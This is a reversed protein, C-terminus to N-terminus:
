IVFFFVRERESKCENEGTEGARAEYRGFIFISFISISVFIGQECKKRIKENREEKKKKMSEGNEQWQFIRNPRVNSDCESASM